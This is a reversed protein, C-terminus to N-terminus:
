LSIQNVTVQELALNGLSVGRVTVPVGVNELRLKEIALSLAVDGLTLAGIHIDVVPRVWFTFGLIGLNLRVGRRTVQADDINVAGTSVINPIRTAPVQVGSVEIAPLVIPGRPRLEGVSARRSTAAPFGVDSLTLAGLQLGSLGFGASPLKTDNAEVARFSAGGLDLNTVPLVQARADDATASPIALDIDQLSPVLVNGLQFGFSLSGLQNTGSDELWLVDYWWDVSLHVTLVIRVNELFANGAHLHASVNQIALRDITAEGLEIADVKLSGITGSAVLLQSIDVTRLARAVLDAHPTRAAPGAAGGTARAELEKAEAM